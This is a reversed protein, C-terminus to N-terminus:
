KDLPIEILAFKYRKGTKNNILFLDNEGEQITYDGTTGDIMNPGKADNSLHLDSTFVNAWRATSSGLNQTGNGGPLIAGGDAQITLRTTMTGAINQRFYIDGYVTGASMQYKSDFFCQANNPYYIVDIGHTNSGNFSIKVGTYGVDSSNIRIYQNASNAEVSLKDTASTSGIAVKNNVSDVFFTNTDVTLNGTISTAQLTAM